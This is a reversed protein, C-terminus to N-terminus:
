IIRRARAYFPQDFLMFYGPRLFVVFTIKGVLILLDVLARIALGAVEYCSSSKSPDTCYTYSHLYPEGIVIYSILSRMLNIYAFGVCIRRWNVSAGPAADLFFCYTYVILSITNRCVNVVITNRGNYMFFGAIFFFTLFRLLAFLILLMDLKTVLVLVLQRDFRTMEFSFFIVFGVCLGIWIPDNMNNLVVLIQSVIAFIIFLCYYFSSGAFRRAWLFPVIPQFQFKIEVHRSLLALKAALARSADAKDSGGSGGAEENSAPSAFSKRRGNVAERTLQNEASRSVLAVHELHLLQASVM